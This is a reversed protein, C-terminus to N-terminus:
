QKLYNLQNQVETEVYLIVMVCAYPPFQLGLHIDYIIISLINNSRRRLGPDWIWSHRQAIRVVVTQGDDTTRREDTTRQDDISSRRDTM